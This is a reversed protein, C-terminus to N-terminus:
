LLASIKNQIIRLTNLNVVVPVNMPEKETSPITLEGITLPKTETLAKNIEPTPFVALSTEIHGGTSIKVIEKNVRM